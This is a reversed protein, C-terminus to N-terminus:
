SEYKSKSQLLRRQQEEKMDAIKKAAEDKVLQMKM